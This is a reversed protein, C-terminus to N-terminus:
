APLRVFPVEYLEAAARSADRVDRRAGEGPDHIAVVRAMQARWGGTHVVVRGMVEVEGRVCGAGHIHMRGTGAYGWIGCSCGRTPAGDCGWPCRAHLWDGVPWRNKTFIISGLGAFRGMEYRPWWVRYGHFPELYLDGDPVIV